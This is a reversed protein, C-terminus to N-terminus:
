SLTGNWRTMAPKMACVPSPARPSPVPPEFYGLKGASNEFTGNLRPMTPMARAFSGFEAFECNKMMYASPAKRLPLYVTTPSTREPISATSLILFPSGTASGSRMVRTCTAASALYRSFPHAPGLRQYSQTRQHQGCGSELHPWCVGHAADEGPMWAKRGHAAHEAAVGAIGVVQEAIIQSQGGLAHGRNFPRRVAVVVSPEIRRVVLEVGQARHEIREAGAPNRRRLVFGPGAHLHRHSKGELAAALDHG